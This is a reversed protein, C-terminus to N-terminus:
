NSFKAILKRISNLICIQILKFYSFGYNLVNVFEVRGFFDTFNSIIKEEDCLLMLSSDTYVKALSCNISLDFSVVFLAHVILLVSEVVTLSISLWNSSRCTIRPLVHSLTFLIGCHVRDLKNYIGLTNESASSNLCKKLFPKASEHHTSLPKEKRCTKLAWNNIYVRKHLKVKCCCTWHLTIQSYINVIVVRKYNNVTM